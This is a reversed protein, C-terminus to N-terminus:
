LDDIACCLGTSTALCLGCRSKRRERAGRPAPIGVRSRGPQACSAPLDRLGRLRSSNGIAVAVTPGRDVSELSLRCGRLFRGGIRQSCPGQPNLSEAEVLVCCSVEPFRESGTTFLPGGAVVPKGLAIARAIVERASTERVIMASLLVADARAIDADTLTSIHLDVVRLAWDRPLMAAVTLLGLPPLAAKRGVIRLIHSFSWFTDPTRPSVLLVNTSVGGTPAPGPRQAPREGKHGLPTAGNTCALGVHQRAPQVAEPGRHGSSLRRLCCLSM